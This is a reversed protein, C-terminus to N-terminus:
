LMQLRRDRAVVVFEPRPVPRRTQGRLPCLRGHHRGKPPMVPRGVLWYRPESGAGGLPRLPIITSSVNRRRTASYQM